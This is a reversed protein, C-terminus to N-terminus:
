TVRSAIAVALSSGDLGHEALVEDPAGCAPVGDVGFRHLRAALALEALATGVLTGLAGTLAHDDICVVHRAGGAVESLWTVDIRNLFPMNVLTLHTGRGALEDAALAAQRLMVPGATLVVVDGSGERLVQGRGVELPLDPVDIPLEVPVTTLRLYGGGPWAEFVELARAVQAASSPQIVLLDPIGGLASVDRVAQHSHGPGSPLLGALSGVYLIRRGETANNFIQENPRTSLFSAFSHVVPFAGRAALGGATSVMDQEAIGCEIFRAPFRERFPLLGVDRVLDADLAVVREDRTALAVLAESYADVLREATPGPGAAVATLEISELEIPDAGVSGLLGDVREVIEDVARVYDERSPAGSHFRYLEGRALQTGEMFAVGRGKVTTAIVILPRDTPAAFAEAFAGPDHGDCQRVEWGFARLKGELDGLDSVDDVFTDSQIGNRDVVVALESMRENVASGLSEWIQGEQLEGDGTMVVVRRHEGAIRAAHIMGKAKSIGMGLSGTNTPIGPTHVDPHGPLGGLRRLAHQLEFPLRGCGALVAYLAPADHGKSSFYVDDDDLGHLHFWSVLDASSFSTGIHGSGARAIMYLVNLRVLDAFIRTVTADDTDLKRVREFESLPAFVLQGEAARGQQEGM